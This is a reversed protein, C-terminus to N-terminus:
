DLFRGNETPRTTFGQTSESGGRVYKFGITDTRRDTVAHLYVGDFTLKEESDNTKESELGVPSFYYFYMLHNVSLALGSLCITFNHPTGYTVLRTMITHDLFEKLFVKHVSGPIQESIWPTFSGTEM